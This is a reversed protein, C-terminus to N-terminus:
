HKDKIADRLIFDEGKTYVTPEQISDLMEKSRSPLTKAINKAISHATIPEKVDKKEMEEAMLYTFVGHGLNDLEIAEQNKTTATVITIGLSRGLQRTLYRQGNELKNYADMGAGSYCADVM